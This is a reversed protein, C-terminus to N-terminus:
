RDSDTRFPPDLSLAVSLRETLLAEHLGVRLSDGTM